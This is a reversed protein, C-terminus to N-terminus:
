QADMLAVQLRAIKSTSFNERRDFALQRLEIRRALSELRVAAFTGFDNCGLAVNGSINKLAQELERAGQKAINGHQMEHRVLEAYFQNWIARLYPSARSEPQWQPFLYVLNVQVRIEKVVCRGNEVVIDAENFEYDAETAAVVHHLKIHEGAGALMSKSLEIGTTGHVPYYKTHERVIVEASANGARDILVITIIASISMLYALFKVM